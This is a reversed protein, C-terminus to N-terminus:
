LKAIAVNLALVAANVEAQAAQVDELPTPPTPGPAPVPDSIGLYEATIPTAGYIACWRAVLESNSHNQVYCATRAASNQDPTGGGYFRAARIFQASLVERTNGEYKYAFEIDGGQPYPGNYNAPQPVLPMAVDLDDMVLLSVAPGDTPPPNKLPLYAM